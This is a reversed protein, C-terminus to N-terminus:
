MDNNSQPINREEKREKMDWKYNLLHNHSNGILDYKDKSFSVKLFTRMGGQLVPAVKHINYQNLRLLENESYTVDNIELSQKEMEGMSITDDLTLEFESKNFITPYKDCWIYNIDNTLFGDSHWGMRNFSTNPLQYMHKATVYIYSDIFEDAGFEVIFDDIIKFILENFCGLRPEGDIEGYGGNRLKIPLYQYFMMEDCKVKIIGLQKPLEGYKM